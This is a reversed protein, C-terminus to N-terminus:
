QEKEYKQLAAEIAELIFAKKTYKRNGSFKMKNVMTGMRFAMSAPVEILMKVVDEKAETKASATKVEHNIQEAGAAVQAPMNEVKEVSQPKSQEAVGAPNQVNEERERDGGVALMRAAQSTMYNRKGM